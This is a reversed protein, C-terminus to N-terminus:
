TNELHLVSQIIGVATMFTDRIMLRTGQELFEPRYLFRLKLTFNQGPIIELDSPLDIVKACQRVTQTHILPQYNGKVVRPEVVRDVTRIECIFEMAARPVSNLDLLVMGSRVNKVEPILFSCFQGAKASRVAVRKCHINSISVQEFSGANDPGLWMKQGVHVTGKLLAGGVIKGSVDPKEITTEIFFLKESNHDWDKTIPLLNLFSVLPEMGELTVSSLKFVPVIGESLFLNSVMIVDEKNEIELKLRGAPLNLADLTNNLELTSSKDVKTIVVILPLNLGLALHLHGHTIDQMGRVADIVLIAYDPLHSCMGAIVSKAYKESGAIDILTVIKSSQDIIAEFSNVLGISYNTIDGKSNFGLVHQSVTTTKGAMMEHKNRCINGRALGRGNDRRGQTLTGILTSKGSGESGLLIVRIDLIVENREKRTVMIEAVYKADSIRRKQSVVALALIDEAMGELNQISEQMNEQSIGVPFGDDSFGIMYYAKGKGEFLRFNMQTILENRRERTLDILRLKYERDGFDDERGIPKSLDTIIKGKSREAGRKQYESRSKKKRPQTPKRLVIDPDDALDDTQSMFEHISM